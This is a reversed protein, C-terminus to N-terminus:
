PLREEQRWPRNHFFAQPSDSFLIKNFRWTHRHYINNTSSHYISIKGTFVEPFKRLGEIDSVFYWRINATVESFRTRQTKRTIWKNHHNRGGTTHWSGLDSLLEVVNPPIATSERTYCVFNLMFVVLVNNKQQILVSQWGKGHWKLQWGSLVFPGVKRLPAAHLLCRPSQPQQFPVEQLSPNGGGNGGGM